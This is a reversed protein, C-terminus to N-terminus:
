YSEDSQIGTEQTNEIEVTKEELLIFGEDTAASAVNTDYSPLFLGFVVVLAFLVSVHKRCWGFGVSVM